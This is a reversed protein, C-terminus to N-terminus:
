EGCSFSHSFQELLFDTNKKYVKTNVAKPKKALSSNLMSLHGRGAM